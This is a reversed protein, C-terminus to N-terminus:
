SARCWSRAWRKLWFGRCAACLLSAPPDFTILASLFTLGFRSFLPTKRERTSDCKEMFNVLTFTLNEHIEFSQTMSRKITASRLWNSFQVFEALVSKQYIGKWEFVRPQPRLASSCRATKIRQFWSVSKSTECFCRNLNGSLKPRPQTMFVEAEPLSRWSLLTEWCAQNTVYCLDSLDRLYIKVSGSIM